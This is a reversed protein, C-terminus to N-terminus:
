EGSTERPLEVSPQLRHLDAMWRDVRLHRMAMGPRSWTDLIERLHRSAPAQPSEGYKEHLYDPDWTVRRLLAKTFTWPTRERPEVLQHLAWPAAELVKFRVFAEIQEPEPVGDELAGLVNEPVPAGLLSRATRLGLWAWPGWGRATAREVLAEGALHEASTVRLIDTLQRLAAYSQHYVSRDLAFHCALHLIEDELGLTRLRGPPRGPGAPLNRWRAAALYEEDSEGTDHQHLRRHIELSTSFDPSTLSPLHYHTQMVKAERESSASSFWGAALLLEYGELAEHSALWIDIDGMTRLAPDGYAPEALALGKLAIPQLGGQELVEIAELAQPRQFGYRLLSATAREQLTQAAPAEPDLSPSCHHHVLPSVCHWDALRLLLDLDVPGELLAEIEPSGPTALNAACCRLLLEYEGACRAYPPFSSM